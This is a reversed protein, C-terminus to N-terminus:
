PKWDPPLQRLFWPDAWVVRCVELDGEAIAGVLETHGYVVKDGRLMSAFEDARRRAEGDSDASIPVSFLARYEM